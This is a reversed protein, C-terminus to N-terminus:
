GGRSVRVLGWIASLAGLMLGIWLVNTLLGSPSGGTADFYYGAAVMAAAILLFFGAGGVLLAKGSPTTASPAM